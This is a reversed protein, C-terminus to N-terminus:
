KSLMERWMNEFKALLTENVGVQEMNFQLNPKSAFAESELDDEEDYEDDDEDEVDAKTEITSADTSSAESSKAAGKNESAEAESSVKGALLEKLDAFTEDDMERLRGFWKDRSVKAGVAELDKLRGEALADKAAEIKEQEIKAKYDNFEAELTAYAKEAQELQERLSAIEAR